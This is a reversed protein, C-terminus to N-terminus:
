RMTEVRGMNPPDKPTPYLMTGMADRIPM